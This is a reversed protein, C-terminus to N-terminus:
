DVNRKNQIAFKIEEQSLYPCNELEEISDGPSLIWSLDFKGPDIIAPQVHGDPKEPMM